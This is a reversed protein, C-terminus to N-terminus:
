FLTASDEHEITPNKKIKEVQKKLTLALLLLCSSLLLPKYAIPTHTNYQPTTTEWDGCAYIIQASPQLQFNQVCSTVGVIEENQIWPGGSDGPSLTTQDSAAEGNLWLLARYIPHPANALALNGETKFLAKKAYNLRSNQLHGIYITQDPNPPKTSLRIRPLNPPPAEALTALALDNEPFPTEPPTKRRWDSVTYEKGQIEVSARQTNELLHAATVGTQSDTLTFLGQLTQGKKQSTLTGTGKSPPTLSPTQNPELTKYTCLAAIGLLVGQLTRLLPLSAV